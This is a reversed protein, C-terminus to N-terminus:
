EQLITRRHREFTLRPLTKTFIDASMDETSIYKVSLQLNSILEKVFHYNVLIHRMQTGLAKKTCTYIAAQNDNYIKIRDKASILGIKQLINHLILASQTATGIATHEAEATSKAVTRQLKSMASILGVDKMYLAAGTTSRMSQEGLAGEGAYNADVHLVLKLTPARHFTIGKNSTGKLYRMIRKAAIIHEEGYKHCHKGCEAVGYLIDPRATRAIWLLAGIAERYPFNESRSDEAPQLKTGPAVPTTAPKCDEMGFERLLERIEQEYTVTIKDQEKTIKLGLWQKPDATKLKFKSKLHTIVQQLEQQTDSLVKSDDVYLAVITLNTNSWM